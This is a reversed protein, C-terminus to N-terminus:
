QLKILHQYKLENQALSLIKLNSDKSSESFNETTIKVVNDVSKQKLLKNFKIYGHLYLIM